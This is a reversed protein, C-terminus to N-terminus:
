GGQGTAPSLGVANLIVLLVVRLFLIWLVGFILIVPQPLISPTVARVLRLVPDTITKFARWIYNDWNEPVFLGLVFRGMLTYMLAALVFNPIHFYWYLWFDTV